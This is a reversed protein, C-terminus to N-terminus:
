MRVACLSNCVPGHKSTSLTSGTQAQQRIRHWSRLRLHRVICIVILAIVVAAAASAAIAITRTGEKESSFPSQPLPVSPPSSIQMMPSTVVAEVNTALLTSAGEPTALQASMSQMLPSAQADPIRIAVSLLVSAAAVTVRVASADVGSARAVSSAIGRLVADSYDAVEGVARVVFQVEVTPALPLPSAPAPSTAPPPPPPSPLLPPLLSPPPWLGTPPSAERLIDPGVGPNAAAWSPDLQFRERMPLSTDRLRPFLLAYAASRNAFDDSDMVVNRGRLQNATLNFERFSEFVLQEVLSDAVALEANQVRLYMTASGAKNHAAGHTVGAAGDPDGFTASRYVDAGLVGRVTIGHASNAVFVSHEVRIGRHSGQRAPLRSAYIRQDENEIFLGQDYCHAFLRRVLMKRVPPQNPNALQLCDRHEAELYNGAHYRLEIGEMWIATSQQLFIHDHASEASLSDIVALSRANVSAVIHRNLRELRCGQVVVYSYERTSVGRGLYRFDEQRKWSQGDSVDVSVRLGEFTCNTLRVGRARKVSLVRDDESSGMRFAVREFIIHGVNDLGLSDLVAGPAGLVIM